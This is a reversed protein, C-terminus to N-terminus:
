RSWTRPDCAPDGALDLRALDSRFGPELPAACSIRAADELQPARDIGVLVHAIAPHDLAARLAVHTLGLGSAMARQAPWATASPRPVDPLARGEDTLAGQLFVSRVAIAVDSAGSRPSWANTSCTTSASYSTSCDARRRRARMPSAMRPRASDHSARIAACDRGRPADLGRRARAGRDLQAVPAARCASAAITRAVNGVIRESRRRRGEDVRSRAGRAIRGSGCRPTATPLRPTSRRSGSSSRGSSSSGRM